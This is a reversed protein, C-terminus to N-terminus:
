EESPTSTEEHYEYMPVPMKEYVQKWLTDMFEKNEKLQVIFNDLGRIRQGGPLDYWGAGGKAIIGMEIGTEILNELVEFGTQYLFRIGGTEKPNSTRSKKVTWKFVEGIQDDGDKIPEGGRTWTITSAFYKQAEGGPMYEPIGMVGAKLNQRFENIVLFSQNPDLLVNWNRISQNNIKADGGFQANADEDMMKETVNAALSDLVFFARNDKQKNIAEMISQLQSRLVEGTLKNERSSRLFIVDDCNLGFMKAREVDFSKELDVWVIIFGAKQFESAAQMAISTKGSAEKGAIFNFRGMVMGGGWDYDLSPIRTPFVKVKPLESGMTISKEGHEKRISHIVEELRNKAM